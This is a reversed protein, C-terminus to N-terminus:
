GENPVKGSIYAFYENKVQAFYRKTIDAKGGDQMVFCSDGIKNVYDMNVVFSNHPQLFRPDSLRKYVTNLPENCTYVQDLTHFVTKRKISEIYLIEHFSISYYFSECKISIKLSSKREFDKLAANMVTTLQDLNIPKLIYNFAFVEYAKIADQTSSTIFIIKVNQDSERVVRATEIGNDEMYIDMLVIDFKEDADNFKELFEAGSAFTALSFELNMDDLIQGVANKLVNLDEINDDCIAINIM